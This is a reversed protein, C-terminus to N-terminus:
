ASNMAAAVAKDLHHPNQREPALLEKRDRERERGIIYSQRLDELKQESVGWM